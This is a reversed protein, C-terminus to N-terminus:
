STFIDALEGYEPMERFASQHTRESYRMAVQCITIDDQGSEDGKFTMGFFFRERTGGPMM